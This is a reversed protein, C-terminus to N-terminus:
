YFEMVRRAEDRAQRLTMPKAGYDEFATDALDADTLKRARTSGMLLVRVELPQRRVWEGYRGPDYVPGGVSEPLIVVRNSRCRMHLPPIPGEGLKYRRGDLGRCLKTTRGDLIAVFQELWFLKPAGLGPGGARMDAGGLAQRVQRVAEAEAADGLVGVPRVPLRLVTTPKAYRAAANAQYFQERAYAGFHVVASRVITDIHNRSTQTAGDRGLAGASGVVRRAVTAPSEGAAAGTYVAQRVRRADDAAASDFWQRLTRGQFPAAAAGAALGGVLAPLLLEVGPLLFAFMDRQDEPEAEALEGLEKEAAQRGAQWAPQRLANLQAIMADLQRVQAPDRLGADTRLADRIIRAIPVETDNIADVVLKRVRLGFRLVLVQRVIELAVLRENVSSQPGIVPLTAM